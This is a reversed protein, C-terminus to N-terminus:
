RQRVARKTHPGEKVLSGVTSVASSAEALPVNIDKRNKSSEGASGRRSVPPPSGSPSWFATQYGRRVPEYERGPRKLNANVVTLLSHHDVVTRSFKRERKLGHRGLELACLEGGENARGGEASVNQGVGLPRKRLDRSLIPRERAVVRAVERM